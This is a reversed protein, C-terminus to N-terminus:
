KINLDDLTNINIFINGFIEADIFLPKSRKILNRLSLNKGELIINEIEKLCDRRYLAFLPEIYGNKHKPIIINYKNDIFNILKKIAEQTIFPADCPLALFWEKELVRMGVLLGMLPGKNEILDFSVIYSKRIFEREKKTNIPNKAFVIVYPINLSMLLDVPYDLLCKGNFIKFPKEGGIRKGEGGALVIAGIICVM